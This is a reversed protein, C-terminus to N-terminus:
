EQIVIATTYSYENSNWNAADTSKAALGVQYTGPALGSIIGSLGMVIRDNQQIQNNLVGGGILNPAGSSGTARYGIALDLDDAGGANASGFAKNSVVFIKQGPETITVTPTSTVFDWTDTPSGGFSSSFSSGVVGGASDGGVKDWAAGDWFYFGSDNNNQYVMLGEDAPDPAIAMREAETMRPILLGKDNSAIDLVANPSPNPNNIGVNQQAALPLTFLALLTFLIYNKM